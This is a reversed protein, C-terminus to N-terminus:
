KKRKLLFVCSTPIFIVYLSVLNVHRWPWGLSYSLIASVKTINILDHDNTFFIMFSMFIFNVHKWPWGQAYSLNAYVNTINILDHRHKMITFSKIQVHLSRIHLTKLVTFHSSSFIRRGVHTSGMFQSLHCFYWYYEWWALSSGQQANVGQDSMDM